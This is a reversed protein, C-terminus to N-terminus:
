IDIKCCLRTDVHSEIYDYYRRFIFHISITTNRRSLKYSVHHKTQHVGLKEAYILDYPTHWIIYEIEKKDLM